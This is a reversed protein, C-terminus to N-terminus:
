GLERVAKWVQEVSLENMCRFHGEPCSKKGYFSCPSCPLDLRLVRQGRAGESFAQADWTFLRPDTSGYLAVVPVGLARALHM